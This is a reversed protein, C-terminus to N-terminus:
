VTVEVVKVEREYANPYMRQLRRMEPHVITRGEEIRPL